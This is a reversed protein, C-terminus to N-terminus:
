PFQPGSSPELEVRAPFVQVFVYIIKKVASIVPLFLMVNGALSGSVSMKCRQLYEHQAWLCRVGAVNKACGQGAGGMVGTSPSYKIRM